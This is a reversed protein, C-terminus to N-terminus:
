KLYGMEVLDEYVEYETDGSVVFQGNVRGEYHEHVHFISVGDNALSMVM